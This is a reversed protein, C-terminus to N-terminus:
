EGSKGMQLFCTNHGRKLRKSICYFGLVEQSLLTSSFHKVVPSCPILYTTVRAPTSKLAIKFCSGILVSHWRIYVEIGSPFIIRLLLPELSCPHGKTKWVFLMFVIWQSEAKQLSFTFCSTGPSTLSVEFCVLMLICVVVAIICKKKLCFCCARSRRHKRGRFYSGPARHDM